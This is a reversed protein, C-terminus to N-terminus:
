RGQVALCALRQLKGLEARSVNHRVRPWWVMPSYILVPRIVMTYIWHVVRPTPGWNKGFTGKCTWFARYAKNMVSEATGEM